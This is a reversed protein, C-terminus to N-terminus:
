SSPSGGKIVSTVMPTGCVSGALIGFTGGKSRYTTYDRQTSYYSYYIWEETRDQYYYDWEDEKDAHCHGRGFAVVTTNSM